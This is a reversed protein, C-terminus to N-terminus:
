EDVGLINAIKAPRRSPARFSQSWGAPQGSVSWRRLTGDAALFLSDGRWYGLGIWDSHTGLRESPDQLAEYSRRGEEILNWKWISGDSKLAVLCWFGGAVAAWNSDKGIQVLGRSIAENSRPKLEPHEALWWNWYWMTGDERIGIEIPCATDSVNLSQFQVHDFDPVREAVTGQVFEVGLRRREEKPEFDHLAWASGDRKWAYTRQNGRVFRAWDSDAGLRLPVSASLGAYNESNLYNTGHIRFREEDFQNTGWHWLTGDRKLLFMSALTDRALSQWNTEAGFQVLPSPPDEVRWQPKESVWLTGDSRIAATECVNQFVDVWNSGAVFSRSGQQLRAAIFASHDLWLRGDPLVVALGSTYDNRLLAPKGVPLRAPGHSDELPMAWEWVRHYIAAPTACVVVMFCTLVLINRRWRRRGEFVYRFNGYALWIFAVPLIPIAVLSWLLFGSYRIAMSCIGFLMAFTAVGTALAPVLGRTLTSAYFGVLSLALFVFVGVTFGMAGFSEGVGLAHGVQEIACMAVASLLGVALAFLLKVVFQSRRSVPLCLLGDLTGLQREDAVSLSGAVM